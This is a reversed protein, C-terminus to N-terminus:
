VRVAGTRDSAAAPVLSGLMRFFGDVPTGSDADGRPTSRAPVALHVSSAAREAQRMAIVSKRDQKGKVVAQIRSAAMERRRALASKTHHVVHDSLKVMMQHAATTPNTWVAGEEAAYRADADFAIRFHQMTFADEGKPATIMAPAKFSEGYRDALARRVLEWGKCGLLSGSSNASHISHSSVGSSFLDGMKGEGRWAAKSKGEEAAAEELHRLLLPKHMQRARGAVLAIMARPNFTVNQSHYQGVHHLRMTGMVRALQSPELNAGKDMAHLRIVQKTVETGVALWLAEDVEPHAMAIERLVEGPVGLLTAPQAARVTVESPAGTGWTTENLAFGIHLVGQRSVVSYAGEAPQQQEKKDPSSAAAPEPAATAGGPTVSKGFRVVSKKRNDPSQQQQASPAPAAPTPAHAAEAPMPAHDPAAAVPSKRETQLLGSMVIYVLDQADGQHIIIEDKKFTIPDPSRNLVQELTSDASNALWPVQRLVDMASAQQIFPPWHVLRKMQTNVRSNLKAVERTDLLGEHALKDATVLQKHLVSRAAIVTSISSYIEFDSQQLQALAAHSAKIDEMLQLTLSSLDTENVNKSLVWGEVEEAGEGGRVLLFDGSVELIAVQVDNKIHADNKGDTGKVMAAGRAPATRLRTGQPYQRNFMSGTDGKKWVTVGADNMDGLLKPVAELAEERAHLFGLLVNHRLEFSALRMRGGLYHCWGMTRPANAALGDLVTRSFATLKGDRLGNVWSTSELATHLTAWENLPAEDLLLSADTLGRLYKVADRGIRGHELQNWYSRKCMLLIRRRMEAEMAEAATPEPARASRVRALRSPKKSPASSLEPKASLSSEAAAPAAGPAAAVSAEKEPAVVAKKEKSPSAPEAGGGGEKELKKKSGLDDETIYFPRAEEWVVSAFVGEKMAQKERAEGSKAIARLAQTFVAQKAPEKESMGLAKILFSMSTGNVVVTLFVMGATHFMVRTRINPCITPDKFVFLGLGLGVAGRLGGWTSILSWKWPLVLLGTFNFVAYAITVLAGRIVLCGLYILLLHWVDDARLSSEASYLDYVFIIGTIVFILTNGFYALMEWFETLFEEVGTSIQTRGNRSMWLGLAVVALVGSCKLLDEAVFFTLYAFTLTLSVEVMADNYVMSMWSTLILGMVVGFIVALGASQIFKLVVEGQTLWHDSPVYPGTAAPIAALMRGYSSTENGTAYAVPCPLDPTGCFNQADKITDLLIQFVVLAVGDNLLSEGEIGIPLLGTLGLEKLLAVVAVPDTASLVVGLTYGAEESWANPACTGDAGGTMNKGGVNMSYPLPLFAGNDDRPMLLLNSLFGTAYTAALMCPVALFVCYWMCRHFVAFDTAFASEFILPPLFVHLMLHADLTAWTRLSLVSLDDPDDTTSELHLLLAGFLMGEILLIVTYPIGSRRFLFLIAAGACLTGFASLIPAASAIHSHGAHSSSGSASGSGYDASSSSASALQRRFDIDDDDPQSQPFNPSADSTLYFGISALPILVAAHLSAIALLSPAATSKMRSM